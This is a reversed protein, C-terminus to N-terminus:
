FTDKKGKKKENLKKKKVEIREMNQAMEYNERLHFMTNLHDDSEFINGDGDTLEFEGTDLLYLHYLVNKDDM